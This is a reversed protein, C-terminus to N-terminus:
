PEADEIVIEEYEEKLKNDLKQEIRELRRLIEVQNRVLKQLLEKVDM